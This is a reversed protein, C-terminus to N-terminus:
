EVIDPRAAGLRGESKASIIGVAQLNAVEGRGRGCNSGGNHEIACCSGIKTCRKESYWLQTLVPMRANGSASFFTSNQGFRDYDRWNGSECSVV